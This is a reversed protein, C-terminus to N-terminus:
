VVPQFRRRAAGHAPFSLVARRDIDRCTDQFVFLIPLSMVMATLGGLPEHPGKCILLIMLGALALISGVRLALGRLRIMAILIVVIFLFGDTYRVPNYDYDAASPFYMEYNWMWVPNFRMVNLLSARAFTWANGSVTVAHANEASVVTVIAPLLWWLSAICVWGFTRLLWISYPRRDACYLYTVGTWIALALAFDVISHPVIVTTSVGAAFIAFLAVTCARRYKPMRAALLVLACIWSLLAAFIPVVLNVGIMIQTYPNLVYVLAAVFSAVNSLGMIRACAFAGVVALISPLVLRMAQGVSDGFIAALVIHLLLVPSWTFCWSPQGLYSQTYNWPVACQAFQHWLFAPMNLDVAAIVYGPHVWHLAVIVLFVILAAPYAATVLFRSM